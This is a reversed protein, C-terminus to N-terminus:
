LEWLKVPFWRLHTNQETKELRSANVRCFDIDPFASANFVRVSDFLYGQWELTKEKNQYM